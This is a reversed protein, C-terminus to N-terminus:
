PIALQAVAAAPGRRDSPCRMREVRTEPDIFRAEACVLRMGSPVSVASELKAAGSGDPEGLFRGLERPQGAGTAVVRVLVLKERPSNAATVKIALTRRNGSTTWSAALQPRTPARFLPLIVCAAGLRTGGTTKPDIETFECPPPQETTWARLGVADYHSAPVVVNVPAKIEGDADPGLFAPYITDPPEFAGARNADRRLGDVYIVIRSEATLGSARVTGEVGGGQTFRAEITPRQTLQQTEIVAYIAFALGLVFAIVALGRLVVESWFGYRELKRWRAEASRWQSPKAIAVLVWLAAAVLVFVFAVALWEGENRQARQLVGTVALGSIVAILTTAAAGIATLDALKFGDNDDRQEAPKSPPPATSTSQPRKKM